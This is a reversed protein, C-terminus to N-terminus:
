PPCFNDGTMFAEDEACAKFDAAAATANPGAFIQRGMPYYYVRDGRKFPLGKADIGPFKATIWYPDGKYHNM